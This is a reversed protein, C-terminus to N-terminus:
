FFFDLGHKKYWRKRAREDKDRQEKWRKLDFPAKEMEWTKVNVFTNPTWEWSKGDASELFEGNRCYGLPNMVILCDGIKFSARHHVHGCIWCKINKHGKIFGELDSIYSANLPSDVYISDICQPSPCHHTVVVVEKDPNSEVIKTLEEMTRNFFREYNDPTLYALEDDSQLNWSRNYACEETKGFNFDNLGGGSVKPTARRKNMEVLRSADMGTESDCTPLRYDTYLTSGVFLIGDVEKSMVGISNDLFSINSDIPFRKGLQRKLEEISYGNRNYVLHNGAIIIGSGVNDRIWKEINKIRFRVSEGDSFTMKKGIKGTFDYNWAGNITFEVVDSPVVRGRNVWAEKLGDFRVKTTKQGKFFEEAKQTNKIDVGIDGNNCEVDILCPHGSTDGAIVTFISPDDVSFPFKANIDMHLDSLVRFKEM